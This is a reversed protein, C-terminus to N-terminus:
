EATIKELDVSVEFYHFRRGYRVDNEVNDTISTCLLLFLCEYDM